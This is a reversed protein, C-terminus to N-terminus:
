LLLWTGLETDARNQRREFVMYEQAGPRKGEAHYKQSKDM